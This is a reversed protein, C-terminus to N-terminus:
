TATSVPLDQEPQDEPREARDFTVIGLWWGVLLGLSVLLVTRIVWEFPRSTMAHCQDSTAPRQDYPLYPWSISILPVHARSSVSNGQRSRRLSKFANHHNTSKMFLLIGHVIEAADRHLLILIMERQRPEQGSQRIRDNISRPVLQDDQCFHHHPQRSSIVRSHFLTITHGGPFAM